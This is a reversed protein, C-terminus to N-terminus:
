ARMSEEQKALQLILNIEGKNMGLKKAIYDMSKGQHHLQFLDAYREKMNMLSAPSEEEKQPLQGSPSPSPQMTQNDQVSVQTAEPQVVPKSIHQASILKELQAHAAQLKAVEQSLSAGQKELWEIRSSLKAIHMECEKKTEAFLQVVAQNQEDMEAAFHEITEEIEQVSAGYRSSSNASKPLVKAYVILVLGFLVIYM